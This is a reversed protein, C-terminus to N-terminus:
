KTLPNLRDYDTPFKSRASKWEEKSLCKEDFGFFIHKNIWEWDVLCYIIILIAWFLLKKTNELEIPKTLDFETAILNLYYTYWFM